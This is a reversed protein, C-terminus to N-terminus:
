FRKIQQPWLPQIELAVCGVGPGIQPGELRIGWHVGFKGVLTADSNRHQWGFLNLIPALWITPTAGWIVICRGM